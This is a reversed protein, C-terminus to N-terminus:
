AAWATVPDDATAAVLVQAGEPPTGFGLKRTGLRKGLARAVHGFTHRANLECLTHLTQAEGSRYVFADVTFPGAYGLCHLASGAADVTNALALRDDPHLSPATLDIGVFAGRQDTLLTHPAESRVRGEADLQACVGIDLVRDLWPEFVVAGFRELLRTIYVRQEGSVTSGEGFARDRGAATWPAKCVWRPHTVTALHADLEGITTVTRASPLAIGLEHALAAAVRRDNPAKADPDAWALDWRSPAGARMTVNPLKIREPNVTAPAYIEVPEDHPALAALLAAAASVRKAVHQPLMAAGWRAECDLNAWIIM